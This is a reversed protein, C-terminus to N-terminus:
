PGGVRPHNLGRLRGCETLPRHINRAAYRGEVAASAAVPENRLALTGNDDYGAFIVNRRTQLHASPLGGGGRSTLKM